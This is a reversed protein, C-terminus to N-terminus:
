KREDEKEKRRKVWEEKPINHNDEIVRETDMDIRVYGCPCEKDSNNDPCNGGKEYYFFSFKYGCMPCEAKLSKLVKLQGKNREAWESLDYANYGM